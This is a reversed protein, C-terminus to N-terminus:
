SRLVAGLEKQLRQAIRGRAKEIEFDPLDRDRSQLTIEFALSQKGDPVPPGQYVDFLRVRQVLYPAAAVIATQVAAAPTTVDVVVALDQVVAQFRSLPVVRRSAPLAARLADLNIEALAVRQGDLDWDAALAPHLEGLVGVVADGVVLEARRGPHFIDPGAPRYEAVIGFRELLAEVIGKVDFFDVAEAPAHRSRPARSGALGLALTRREVPLSDSGTPLYVSAVEFLRVRERRRLNPGLTALMAPLLTPRMTRSEPRLPNAIELLPQDAPRDPSWADGGRLRALEDPNTWSYGIIESLGAAVLTDRVSEEFLLRADRKVGPLAGTPLTDPLTEYGAVRAVEEVLDAPIRADARWSPVQIHLVSREGGAERGSPSPPATGEGAPLPAPHPGGEAVGFGLRTLVGTVTALPYTVGLLRKIEGVPFDITVPQPPRPYSDQVREIRAGPCLQLMLEAARRAASLALEPDLGREFRSSAETRLRLLRRTRRVSKMDFNASELLVDTTDAAIESDVGGIVGALAVAREADAIVLVQEDLTRQEHDISELVEGSRARRVIIRGGRLHRLDFAHLPQGYELMVYNTIDVINNISRLGLLRLRHQLWRPSPEVRVGRVIAGIYRSCLDPADITVLPAPGTVAGTASWGAPAPTPLRLPRDYLAAVERAVGHVSFCHVLNPTIELELVADGLYDRAPRGLPADAPLEIIGEHEDSLGLEAESMVMGESAVGRITTKKLTALKREPDHNDIYRTGLGGYIVMQGARVNPAGTVVTQQRGDGLEVTVLRLRDANPHPAVAAIRAVVVTEPAWDRGIEHVSEVELGALTLRHSLAEATEPLDVLERLWSLPVKM